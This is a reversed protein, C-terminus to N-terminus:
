WFKVIQGEFHWTPHLELNGLVDHHDGSLSTIGKNSTVSSKRSTTPSAVPSPTEVSTRRTPSNIPSVAQEQDPPPTTSTKKTLSQVREYLEEIVPSKPRSAPKEPSQATQPPTQQPPTVIIPPSKHLLQHRHDEEEEELLEEDEEVIVEDLLSTVRSCQGAAAAAPREVDTPDKLGHASVVVPTCFKVPVGDEDDDSPDDDYGGCDDSDQVPTCFKVPSTVAASPVSKVPSHDRSPIADM